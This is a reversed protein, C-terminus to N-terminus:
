SLSEFDVWRQQADIEPALDPLQAFAVYTRWARQAFWLLLTLLSFAAVVVMPATHETGGRRAIPREGWWRTARALPNLDIREVKM